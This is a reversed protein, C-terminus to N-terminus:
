AILGALTIVPPSGGSTQIVRNFWRAHHGSALGPAIM